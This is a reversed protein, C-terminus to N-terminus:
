FESFCLVSDPGGTVAQTARSSRCSPLMSAPEANQFTGNNRWWKSVMTAEIDDVDVWNGPDDSEADSIDSNKHEEDM